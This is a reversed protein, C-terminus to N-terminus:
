QLLGNNELHIEIIGIVEIMILWQISGELEYYNEGYKRVVEICDSIFKISLERRKVAPIHEYNEEIIDIILSYPSFELDKFLEENAKEISFNVDYGAQRFSDFIQGANDIRQQIFKLDGALQPQYKKLYSILNLYFYSAENNEIKGEM